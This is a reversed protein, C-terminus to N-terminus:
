IHILSLQVGELLMKAGYAMAAVGIGAILPGIEKPQTARLHRQQIKIPASAATRALASRRM